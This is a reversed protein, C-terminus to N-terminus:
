TLRSALPVSLQPEAQRRAGFCFGLGSALSSSIAGTTSVWASAGTAWGTLSGTTSGTAAAGTSSSGTGASGAAASATVASGRRGLGSCLGCTFSGRDDLFGGADFFGRDQVFGFDLRAFFFSAAM